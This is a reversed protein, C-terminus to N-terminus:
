IEADDFAEIESKEWNSVLDATNMVQLYPFWFSNEGLLTQQTLFSALVLQENDPHKKSFIKPHKKLFPTLDSQWVRAVSIICTNPIAIFCKNQAIFNKASIGM